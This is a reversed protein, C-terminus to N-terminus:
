LIITNIIENNWLVDCRPSGREAIIANILGVTKVAEVDYKAKVRIGTKKEFEKLIPESYVQDVSTYIVVTRESPAPRCSSFLVLCIPILSFEILSRIWYIKKM